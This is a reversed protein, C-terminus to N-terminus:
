APALNCSSIKKQNHTPKSISPEPLQRPQLQGVQLRGALVTDEDSEYSVGFQRVCVGDHFREREHGDIKWIEEYIVASRQNLEFVAIEKEIKQWRLVTIRQLASLRNVHHVLRCVVEKFSKLATSSGSELARLLKKTEKCTSDISSFTSTPTGMLLGHPAGSGNFRINNSSKACPGAFKSLRPVIDNVATQM